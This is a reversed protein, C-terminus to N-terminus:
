LRATSDGDVVARRLAETEALMWSEYTDSRPMTEYVGVVPVHARKAVAIFAETLPDTVQQNYLLAKVKHDRLLHDELAVDQPSPDVGNMIDAQFSYPTRDSAGMADLLYGAVPETTAVPVGPHSQRFGAIAGLWPQLSADFRSLSADFYSAHAPQRASLERALASAVAPMTTPDYWLHPNATTDPLRLLKQVDIVARQRGPVAAEVSDMYSDYGLGNQILISASGV